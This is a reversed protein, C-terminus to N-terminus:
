TISQLLDWYDKAFGVLREKDGFSLLKWRDHIFGILYRYCGLMLNEFFSVVFTQANKGSETYFISEELENLRLLGPLPKGLHNSQAYKFGFPDELSLGQKVSVPDIGCYKVVTLFMELCLYFPDRKTGAQTLIDHLLECREIIAIRSRVDIGDLIMKKFEQIDEDNVYSSCQAFKGVYHDFRVDFKDNISGEDLKVEFDIFKALYKDASTGPGYINEVMHGLQTKDVSLIMQVNAIGDFVHHLRELVKISYEPLCRDLEDVVILVTQDKALAGIRERLKKLIKKFGLHADFADAEKVKKEAAENGEKLLAAVGDVDIGTQEEIHAYLKKQVSKGVITLLEKLNQRTEDSFLYVKEEITDLMAATIAVLPEDYYDYQWCNYHFLLYKGMTTTETQIQEVQQEFMDLVFSKGVGWVGNLAYSANKKNAALIETIRILNGVFDQRNLLDVADTKKEELAIVPMM